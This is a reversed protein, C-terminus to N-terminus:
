SNYFNKIGEAISSYWKKLPRKYALGSNVPTNKVATTLKDITEVSEAFLKTMTEVKAKLSKIEEDKASLKEDFSKSLQEIKSDFDFQKQSPAEMSKTEVIQEDSTEDVEMEDAQTEVANESSEEVETEEIESNEDAPKPEEKEETAEIKQEEVEEEKVEVAIWNETEEAVYEEDKSENWEEAIEETEVEENPVEEAKPEELEEEKKEEEVEAPKEEVEEEVPEETEEVELLDSVSKSLAYPNMPVSVVSIEYLELDKIINTYDYSGDNLERVDTDYDKISYWISFARLVWDKILDVVWDTNQTIKAKIWLWNDDISAEEVIGIPKDAKHQLLVIPNTMYRELASAFAKPEVVDGGRDKDKTSAYWSIQVAWNELEQVSKTERLSQFYWKEKILKFKKM